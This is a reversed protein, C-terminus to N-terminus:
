PRPRNKGGHGRGQERQRASYPDETRGDAQCTRPHTRSASRYKVRYAHRARQWYQFVLYYETAAPGSCVNQENSAASIEAVLESTKQIDPVLQDLMKGAKDSIAVSSSALETIEGASQQSREALKRVEAAVVAFGKGHEGARAAEIAANLALLNTQRAIEEIINIKEAIQKMATMAESVARGSERADEAAKRSIKETENANDANQRINSAMEEMSSSAEEAASAQESAGQSMEESTSSLEESGSAVQESSEIVNSVIGRLKIVMTKLAAFVGSDVKRGSEMNVTLDGEAVKEAIEVMLAPEAGIQSLVGRTVILSIGIGLALAIISLIIILTKATKEDHEATLAAKETFKEIDFLFEELEKDLAEEEVEVEEALAEAEHLNNGNIYKFVELVHKEYNAHEEEIEKLHSLVGEFERRDADTRANNIARQALEEGEIIEEDSLKALTEFEHEAEELKSAAVDDAALVKGYRLAREFWIAQELQHTEIKTIIETLPIDNEAISEIEHGIATMKFISVGAVIAMMVILIVALGVIKTGLRTDGFSAM